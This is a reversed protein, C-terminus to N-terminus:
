CLSSQSLTVQTPAAFLTDLCAFRIASTFVSHISEISINM